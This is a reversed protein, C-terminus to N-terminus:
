TESGNPESMDFKLGNLHAYQLRTRNELTEASQNETSQYELKSFAQESLTSAPVGSSTRFVMDGLEADKYKNWYEAFVDSLDSVSPLSSDFKLEPLPPEPDALISNLHEQIKQLYDTTKSAIIQQKVEKEHKEAELKTRKKKPANIGFNAQTLERQKVIDDAVYFTSNALKSSTPPHAAVMKARFPWFPPGWRAVEELNAFELLFDGM